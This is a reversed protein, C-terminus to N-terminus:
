PVEQSARNLATRVRLRQASDPDEIIVRELFARVVPDSAVDNLTRLITGRTEGNAADYNDIMVNILESDGEAQSVLMRLQVQAEANTQPNDSITVIEFLAQARELSDSLDFDFRLIPNSIVLTSNGMVLTPAMREEPTLTRDLLTQERFAAMEDADMLAMNAVLRVEASADNGAAYQLAARASSLRGYAALSIAAERRVTADTDSMLAYSMAEALEPAYVRDRLSSWILRRINASESRMAIEVLLAIAARDFDLPEMAMLANFREQDSQLDTLSM